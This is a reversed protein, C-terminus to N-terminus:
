WLFRNAADGYHKQQVLVEIISDGSDAHSEKVLEVPKKEDASVNQHNRTIGFSISKPDDRDSKEVSKDFSILMFSDWIPDRGPRRRCNEFDGFHRLLHSSKALKRIPM